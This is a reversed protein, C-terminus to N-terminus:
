QQRRMCELVVVGSTKASAILFIRSGYGSTVIEPILVCSTHIKIMRVLVCCDRLTFLVLRIAWLWGPVGPWVLRPSCPFESIPYVVQPCIWGAQSCSCLFHGADGHGRSIIESSLLQIKSSSTSYNTAPLPYHGLVIRVCNM